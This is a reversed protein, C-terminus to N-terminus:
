LPMTQEDGVFSVTGNDGICSVIWIFNRYLFQQQKGQSNQDLLMQELSQQDNTQAEGYPEICTITMNRM